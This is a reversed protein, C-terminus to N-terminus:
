FIAVFSRAILMISLASVVIAILWAFANFVIGNRFKGMIEENSSLRVISFLIIPLLVGNIAQTILLVRIQPLGPLLAVLAGLVLLFTFIGLFIPAERFGRSIGKEFGLAESISYATALPLVGMALMSAGFLGFGFLYKAYEGAIPALAEAATAASDVNTVGSKHLTAGASIVIFAAITMAFTTGVVVDLRALPLDADDLGKEVASSQVFFQMFPTITTGIMAMVTFLYATDANFSPTVFERGIESWDPRALIASAVYCLFVLSIALFVQEVREQTGRAVILWILIAILPVSIYRPIGFLESVQSIGIFQSVIVGANAVLLALMVIATLRVGFRERILDALGQGTAVGMRICMEQVVILTLVMPIFTWLLSYGYAAGVTSYTAVGGADNGANAAIIGPGLIALYVFLRNASLARRARAWTRTTLDSISEFPRQLRSM